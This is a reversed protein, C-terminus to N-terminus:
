PLSMVAVVITRSPPTVTVGAPFRKTSIRVLSDGFYM